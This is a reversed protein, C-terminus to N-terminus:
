ETSSFPKGEANGPVVDSNDVGNGAVKSDTNRVINGVSEGPHTRSSYRANAKPHAPPHYYVSSTTSEHHSQCYKVQLLPGQPLYDMKFHNCIDPEILPVLKKSAHKSIRRRELPALVVPGVYHISTSKSDSMSLVVQKVQTEGVCIAEPYNKSITAAGRSSRQGHSSHLGELGRGDVQSQAQQFPGKSSLLSEACVQGGEMTAEMQSHKRKPPAIEDPEAGGRGMVNVTGAVAKIIQRVNDSPESDLMRDDGGSGWEAELKKALASINTNPDCVIDDIAKQLTVIQERYQDRVDDGMTDNLSAM